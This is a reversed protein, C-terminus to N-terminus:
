PAPTGGAKIVAQAREKLPYKMSADPISNAVEEGKTAVVAAEKAFGSKLMRESLEILAYGQNRDDGALKECAQAAQTFLEKAKDAQDNETYAVGLQGLIEAKKRQDETADVASQGIALLRGVDEKRNMVSFAAALDCIHKVKLTPDDVQDLLKEAEEILQNVKSTDIEGTPSKVVSQSKAVSTLATIKLKPDEILKLAELAKTQSKRADSNQKISVQALALNAYAEAEGAYNPINASIKECESFAMGLTQKAGLRDGRDLQKKAIDILKKVKNPIDSSSMAQQIQQDLTPQSNGGKGCGILTTAIFAVAILLSLARTM